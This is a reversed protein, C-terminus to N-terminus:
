QLGLVAFKAARDRRTGYTRGHGEEVEQQKPPLDRSDRSTQLDPVDDSSMLLNEFLESQNSLAVDDCNMWGLTLSRPKRLTSAYTLMGFGILCKHTAEALSLRLGWRASRFRVRRDLPRRDAGSVKLTLSVSDPASILSCIKKSCSPTRTELARKTTLPAVYGILAIVDTRATLDFVKGKNAITKISIPNPM